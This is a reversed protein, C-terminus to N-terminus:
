PIRIEMGAEHDAQVVIDATGSRSQFHAALRYTGPQVMGFKFMGAADTIAGIERFPHDGSAIVVNAGSIAAGAADVVRGTIKGHTTM